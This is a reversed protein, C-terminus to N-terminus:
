DVGRWFEAEKHLSVLEDKLRRVKFFTEIIVFTVAKARESKLITALMYLGKETFVKTTSRSKVSVKTTTKKSRLDYLERKTLEFMYDSPFKDRNNKVAENVRRTEVGYLEAVDADAIVAMKRIEVIKEEVEAASILVRGSDKKVIDGM